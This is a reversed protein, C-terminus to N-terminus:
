LGQVDHLLSLADDVTLAGDANPDAKLHEPTTEAYGQVLELLVIVDNVDKKGNFDFDGPLAYTSAAQLHSITRVDGASQIGLAFSGVVCLTGLTLVIPHTGLVSPQKKHTPM